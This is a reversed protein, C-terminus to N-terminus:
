KRGQLTLMKDRYYQIIVDRHSLDHSPANPQHVQPADYHQYAQPKSDKCRWASLVATMRQVEDHYEPSSYLNNMELPDKRLDFFLNESRPDALILM